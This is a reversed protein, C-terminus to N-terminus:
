RKSACSASSASSPPARSLSVADAPSLSAPHHGEESAAAAVPVLEEVQELLGARVHEAGGIQEVPQKAIPGVILPELALDQDALLLAVPDRVVHDLEQVVLNRRRDVPLVHVRKRRREVVDHVVGLLSRVEEAQVVDLGGHVLGLLEAAHQPVSAAVEGHSQSWSNPLRCWSSTSTLRSSFSPSRIVRSASADSNALPISGITTIRHFSMKSRISCAISAQSVAALM